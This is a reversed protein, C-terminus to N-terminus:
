VECKDRLLRLKPTVWGQLESGEGTGGASFDGGLKDFMYMILNDLNILLHFLTFSQSFEMPDLHAVEGQRDGSVSLGFGLTKDM